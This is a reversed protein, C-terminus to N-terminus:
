LHTCSFGACVDTSTPTAFSSFFVVIFHTLYSSASSCSTPAGSLLLFSRASPSTVNYSPHAQKHLLAFCMCELHNSSCSQSNLGGYPFGSYFGEKNTKTSTSTAGPLPPGSSASSACPSNPQGLFLQLPQNGVDPGQHCSLSYRKSTEDTPRKTEKNGFM